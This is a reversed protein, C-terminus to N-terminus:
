IDYFSNEDFREENSHNNTLDPIKSWERDVQQQHQHSHEFNDASGEGVRQTETRTHPRKSDVPTKPSSSM